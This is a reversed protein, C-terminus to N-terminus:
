YFYITAELVSANSSLSAFTTKPIGLPLAPIASGREAKQRQKLNNCFTVIIQEYKYTAKLPIFKNGLTPYLTPDV